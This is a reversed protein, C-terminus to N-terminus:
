LEDAVYLPHLGRHCVPLPHFHSTLSALVKIPPKLREVRPLRIAGSFAVEVRVHHIDGRLVAVRIRVFRVRTCPICHVEDSTAAVVVWLIALPWVVPPVHITYAPGERDGVVVLIGPLWDAGRVVHRLLLGAMLGHVLECSVIFVDDLEGAAAGAVFAARLVRSREGVRESKCVGGILVVDVKQEAHCRCAKKAAGQGLEVRRVDRSLAPLGESPADPVHPVTNAHRPVHAERGRLVESPVQIMKHGDQRGCSLFRCARAFGQASHVHQQASHRLWCQQQVYHATM